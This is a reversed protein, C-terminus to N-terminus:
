IWDLITPGNLGKIWVFWAFSMATGERKRREFDGSKACMAREVFQLIRHPPTTVFLENYRKKGEVFLTRLFMCVMSGDPVIKLAHKVFPLSKGFPPNTVIAFDGEFPPETMAFFDQVYGYGRDILDSSYVEHGLQELRISLHGEGCAPELIRHPLDIKKKLADITSPHTAYYDNTEREDDCHISSGLTRIAKNQGNTWNRM